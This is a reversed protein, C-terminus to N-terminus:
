MSMRAIIDNDDPDEAEWTMDTKVFGVSQYLKAMDDEEPDYTAFIATAEGHPKTKIEELLLKLAAEEYGKGLHNKDVMFPRIRYCTEKFVPDGTYYNYSILGVMKGEAYIARCEMVTGKANFDYAVALLIANTYVYDKQHPAIDLAICDKMNTDTITIKKLETM